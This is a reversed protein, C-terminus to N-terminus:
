DPRRDREGYLAAGCGNLRFLTPASTLPRPARLGKKAAKQLAPVRAKQAVGRMVRDAEPRRAHEQLWRGHWLLVFSESDESAAELESRQDADPAIKAAKSAWELGGRRNGTVLRLAAAAGVLAAVRRRVIARGVEPETEQLADDLTGLVDHDVAEEVLAVRAKMRPWDARAPDPELVDEDILQDVHKIGAALTSLADM